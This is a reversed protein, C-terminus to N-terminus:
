KLINKILINEKPELIKSIKKSMENNFNDIFIKEDESIKEFDYIFANLTMTDPNKNLIITTSYFEEKLIVYGLNELISICIVVAAKNVSIKESLYNISYNGKNELFNDILTSLILICIIKKDNISIDDVTIEFNSDIAYSMQAGGLVIVWLYKIWLLFLPVFALSGYIANYRSISVILVTYFNSLLYLVFSVVFASIISSRFTVKANPIGQYMFTLFIVIFLFKFMKILGVTYFNFYDKKIAFETIKDNTAVFLIIIIPILIVLSIYVMYNRFMSGKVNTKWIRNFANVIRQFLAIVSWFVIIIGVGALLNTSLSDLLNRTIEIIFNLQKESAPIFSNLKNLLYIDLGFGKTFGLIIALLPFISILSVYTLDNSLMLIDTNIFNKLIVNVLGKITKTFVKSVVKM